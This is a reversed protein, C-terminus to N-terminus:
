KEQILTMLRDDLPLGAQVQDLFMRDLLCSANARTPLPKQAKVRTFRSRINKEIETELRRLIAAQERKEQWRTFPNLVTRTPGNIDNLRKMDKYLGLNADPREGFFIQWIVSFPYKGLQFAMDAVEESVALRRLRDYLSKAEDVIFHHYTKTASPTLGPALM